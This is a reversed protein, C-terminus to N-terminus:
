CNKERLYKDIVFFLKKSNFFNINSINKALQKKTEMLKENSLLEIITKELNLMEKFLYCAENELLKDYINEWNFIYPGTIITCNNAAPEIPNHGGKKVFSGGLFVIDSLNYYYPM